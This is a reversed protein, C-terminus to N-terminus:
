FIFNIKFVSFLIPVPAPDPEGGLQGKETVVGAPGSKM